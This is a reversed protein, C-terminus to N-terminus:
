IRAQVEVKVEFITEVFLCLDVIVDIKFNSNFIIRLDSNALVSFVRNIPNPLLKTVTM